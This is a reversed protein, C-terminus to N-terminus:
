RYCCGCSTRDHGCKAVSNETSQLRYMYGSRCRKGALRFSQRPATSTSSRNLRQGCTCAYDYLLYNITKVLPPLSKFHTTTTIQTHVSHRHNSRLCQPAQYQYVNGIYSATAFKGASMGSCREAASCRSLCFCFLFLFTIIFLRPFTRAVSRRRCYEYM